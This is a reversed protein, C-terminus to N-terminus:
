NARTSRPLVELAMVSSHFLHDGVVLTTGKESSGVMSGLVLGGYTPDMTVAVLPFLKPCFRITYNDLVSITQLSEMHNPIVGKNEFM